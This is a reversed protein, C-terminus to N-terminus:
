GDFSHHERKNLWGEPDELYEQEETSTIWYTKNIPPEALLPEIQKSLTIREKSAEWAKWDELHMWTSIVTIVRSDETSILTEGGIYGKHALAETRLERLMPSIHEDKRLKREIIVKIM